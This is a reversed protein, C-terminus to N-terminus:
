TNVNQKEQKARSLRFRYIGLVVASIFLGEAIPLGIAFITLIVVGVLLIVYVIMSKLLPLQRAFGLKYVIITLLAVIVYLTLFGAFFQDDVGALQAVPTYDIQINEEM